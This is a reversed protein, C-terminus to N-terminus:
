KVLSEFELSPDGFYNADWMVWRMEASESLGVFDEKSVQNARGLSNVGGTVIAHVFRRHLMQSAGPTVTTEPAPDEPGLGYSSNAIAAGAGNTHRVLKEIFSDNYTFDGPFCGQTYFFFPTQNTYSPFGWSSSSRMNYTQNSHGLHNIMAFNGQNIGKVAQSGSWEDGNKEDYIREVDWDSGYGTTEYQHDTCQGVLQDMYDGGYLGKEAFLTEGMLYVRKDFGGKSMAVTKAVSAQLQATTDVTMRGVVVESLLDVDGGNLGDTPEGWKGNANGDFDGDLNAYYLDAPINEEVWKWTGTYARLRAWMRRAPIVGSTGDGDAALLVYRVGSSEYEERIRNRIKAARDRGEGQTEIEEVTLVESSLGRRELDARLAAINNSGSFAALAKTTIILYDYGRTTREVSEIESANDVFAELRERQHSFLAVPQGREGSLNLRVRGSLRTEVKGNGLDRVPYLTVIAINVGHLRQTAVWVPTAPWEGGVVPAPADLARRAMEANWSFPVQSSASEIQARMLGPQGELDVSSVWMGSPLAVRITKYPVSPKGAEVTHPLADLSVRLGSATRSLDLHDFSFDITAAGARALRSTQVDIAEGQAEGALALAIGCGLGLLGCMRNGVM